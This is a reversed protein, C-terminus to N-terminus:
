NVAPPREFAARRETGAGYLLGFQAVGVEIRPPLGGFATVQEAASVALAPSGSEIVLERGDPAVIRLRYREIEEGLPVDLGDWGDGSLRTRRVWSLALGGDARFGCALHVPSLPKLARRGLTVTQTVVAPDDFPRGLPAVRWQLEAGIEGPKLGIPECGAGLLVFSAGTGAGAAMSGETGGLGRVLGTLRFRMPAVEEATAFQVVEWEGGPAQVACLNGGALLEGMGISFLAGRYLRVEMSANPQFVGERGLPMARVLEGVTAPQEAILRREFPGGSASAEVALPLFPEAFAAFRAPGEASTAAGQPLDLFLTLPRSAFVPASSLLTGAGSGERGATAGAAPLRRAEVRLTEGSEIRSVLWRGPADAIEVCDGAELEVNTPPLEFSLSEQGAMARALISAAFRRAAEEELVAPAEVRDQRPYPRDPRSAEAAGSQYARGADTFGVVVEKVVESEEGRRRDLAIRGDDPEALVDVKADAGLAGVSRFVLRGGESRSVVGCLRMVAELEARASAGGSSVYGTLLADVGTADVNAFGHDSLLVRILADVPAQGLRGTLWHGLRWNGGDSWLDTRAPFAPFPRADWAWLHIASPEVMRGGYNPSVPNDADRFGPAAPDWFSLHAELFRRQMLDDRAGTSFHPVFSESSKPDVFVNPQNAGKDVAPCGLETFWIPKSRPEWPTPTGLEGGGRREFHRNEWWGRIDKARFTWPKGLGDTIPTRRRSRRDEESRYFWDHNEGGAIGGRLAELDYPSGEDGDRWDALSLYNDIGVMHIAPHAWLPDLNFFVDGSGDEPRYGFYESWDAAYTLKAGPLVRAVDAALEGLASVFPFVGGSERVRTLGRLESGIVFADVGGALKALHAQHLVMRRYSWEAPGNYRVEGNEIRFHEPRATGVFRRVAEEAEATGDPSGARGTAVRLTIRGRWPYSAQREAGYPDALKNDAPVDMLVFPYFTVKLGRAAMDRLARVVGADSPTGGYAPGGGSWSILRAHDRGTPGVRWGETEDRVRAEVGPRITCRGADLDDGFWSVVLAARELKPCLATLEDLSADFDSSGHLVNRNLSKDTGKAIRERVTRPDLGHESAGPIVAVARLGAELAGIPRLVEFSFQPIRNGWRELALREFVVYALGRYAPANGAGQKAEILPDPMQSEDGRHLRMTVGTLDIEEGDAWVRRVAAIPGECLGVAVNGFYSYTTVSAGGGGGKGGQRETRAAEEFRTTWIVQGSVRATGYVRAVSAGEDANQIRSAALRAGEVKRGRAFLGNDIASGGIAGLARGLVGGVPGGILTGLAGGAAQLLITAM